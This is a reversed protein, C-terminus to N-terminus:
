FTVEVQEACFLGQRICTQNIREKWILLWATTLSTLVNMQYTVFVCPWTWWTHLSAICTSIFCFLKLLTQHYHALYQDFPNWPADIFRSSLLRRIAVALSLPRAKLQHCLHKTDPLPLSFLFTSVAPDWCQWPGPQRSDAAAQETKTLSM